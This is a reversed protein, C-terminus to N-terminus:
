HFQRTYQLTISVLGNEDRNGIASWRPTMSWEIRIIQTNPDDLVTTYTFVLDTAVQQQLTVVAQPLQSGSTFSPDIKLQSVGFVRQLRNAFPDALAAGVLASEGRQELSQAPVSPQNALLTPDSTPAQGAALLAVIEQFQLPPDSTYSLKLDDMPGRVSLDVTVGKARTELSIDVIPEIRNPNYFSITGSSMKYTAGLFVLNGQNMQITGVVGPQAARGRIRLEADIQVNEALSAQVATATSTRVTIDLNMNQLFPSSNSDSQVPPGSRTLISGIDTQPLYTLRDITVTGSAASSETTGSLNINATTVVSVGQQVSIRVGRANARIAFQLDNERTVFGTLTLKGGGSDATLNQITATTGNFVVAGNANSIGAPLGGYNVSANHLEVRGNVLPQQPTGQISAALTVNGSSYFDSDMTRLLGLNANANVRLDLTQDRVSATGTATIDTQAGAIHASEIRLLGKELTMAIDGQNQLALQQRGATQVKTANIQLTNLRVSGSLQDLQTLPGDVTIRGSTAGDFSSDGGGSVLPALNSWKLDSFTVEANLPYNGSLVANGRGHIAARALGSELTFNLKGEATTASLDVNGLNKGDLALGTAGIHATLDQITVRNSATESLAGKGQGSIDLTGTLGPRRLQINRVRALDVRSSQLQFQLDGQQLNDRPHDFRATLGLHSPGTTVDLQKVDISDPLYSVRVRLRDIPEDYAM